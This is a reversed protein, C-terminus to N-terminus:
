RIRGLHQEAQAVAQAELDRVLQETHQPGSTMHFRKYGDNLMDILESRSWAEDPHPDPLGLREAFAKHAVMRELTLLMGFDSRDGWQDREFFSPDEQYFGDPYKARIGQITIRDSPYSLCAYNIVPPPKSM